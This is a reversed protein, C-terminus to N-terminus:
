ASVSVNGTGEISLELGDKTLTITATDEAFVENQIEGSEIALLITRVVIETQKQKGVDQPLLDAGTIEPHDLLQAELAYEGAGPSDMELMEAMDRSTSNCEVQLVVRAQEPTQGDITWSGSVSLMVSSPPESMSATDGSVDLTDMAVQAKTRQSSLTVVGVGGALTAAGLLYKRRSVLRDSDFPPEM